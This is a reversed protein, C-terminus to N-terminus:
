CVEEFEFIHSTNKNSEVKTSKNALTDVKSPLKTSSFGGSPQMQELLKKRLDSNCLDLPSHGEANPLTLVTPCRDVLM